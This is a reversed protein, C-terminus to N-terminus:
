EEESITFIIEGDESLFYEKRALKGIYEDDNLKIIEEKLITETKQLDKLEADLKAQEAKLEEITSSQSIITSITFYALISAFIFFAALRRIILTKRRKASILYREQQKMYSSQLKAVTQKKKAEM